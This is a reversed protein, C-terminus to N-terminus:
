QEEGKQLWQWLAEPIGEPATRTAQEEEWLARLVADLPLKLADLAPVCAAHETRVTEWAAVLAAGRADLAAREKDYASQHAALEMCRALIARYRAM